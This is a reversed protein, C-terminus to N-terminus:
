TRAGEKPRARELDSDIARALAAAGLRTALTLALLTAGGHLCALSVPAHRLLSVLAVSLAGAAACRRGLELAAQRAAGSRASDSM